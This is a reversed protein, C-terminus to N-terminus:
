IVASPSVISSTIFTNLELKSKGKCIGYNKMQSQTDKYLHNVVANVVQLDNSSNVYVNFNELYSNEENLNSEDNIIYKNDMLVIKSNTLKSNENLNTKITYNLLHKDKTLDDYEVTVLDLTSNNDLTISKNINIDKTDNIKFIELISLNIGSHVNIDITTDSDIDHILIFKLDKKLSLSDLGLINTDKILGNHMYVYSLNLSKSLELFENM